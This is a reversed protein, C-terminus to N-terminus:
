RAERFAAIMAATEEDTFGDAAELAAEPLPDDASHGLAPEGDLHGCMADLHDLLTAQRAQEASLSRWWEYRGRVDHPRPPLSRRLMDARAALTM